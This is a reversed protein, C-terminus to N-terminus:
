IAMNRCLGCIQNTPKGCGHYRARQRRAQAQTATLLVKDADEVAKPVEGERWGSADFMQKAKYPLDSRQLHFTATLLTTFTRLPQARDAISRTGLDLPGDM